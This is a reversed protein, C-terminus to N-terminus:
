FFKKKTAKEDIAVKIHVHDPKITPNSCANISTL